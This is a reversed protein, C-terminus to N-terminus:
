EKIVFPLFVQNRVEVRSRGSISLLHTGSTFPLTASIWGQAPEEPATFVGSADILGVNSRWQIPALQLTESVSMQWPNVDGLPIPNGYRDEPTATMQLSQGPALLAPNPTVVLTHPPGPEVTIPMTASVAGVHATIHAVTATFPAIYTNDGTITGV